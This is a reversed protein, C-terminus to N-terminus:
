INKDFWAYLLSTVTGSISDFGLELKFCGYYDWDKPLDLIVTCKSIAPKSDIAIDCSWSKIEGINKDFAQYGKVASQVKNEVISFSLASNTPKDNSSVTMIQSANATISLLALFLVTLSKM